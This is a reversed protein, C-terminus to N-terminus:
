GRMAYTLPLLRWRENRPLYRSESMDRSFKGASIIKNINSITLQGECSSSAKIKYIQSISLKVNLVAEESLSELNEASKGVDGGFGQNGEHLYM